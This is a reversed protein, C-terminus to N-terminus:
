GQTCIKSTVQIIKKWRSVIALLTTLFVVVLGAIMPILPFKKTKEASSSIMENQLNCLGPLMFADFLAVMYKFTGKSVIYLASCSFQGTVTVYFLKRSQGYSPSNTTCEYTGEHVSKEVRSARLVSTVGDSALTFGDALLDM